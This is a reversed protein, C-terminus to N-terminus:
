QGWTFTSCLLHLLIFGFAAMISLVTSANLATVTMRGIPQFQAGQAVINDQMFQTLKADAAPIGM